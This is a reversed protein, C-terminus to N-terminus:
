GRHRSIRDSVLWPITRREQFSAISTLLVTARHCQRRHPTKSASPSFCRSGLLASSPLNRPDGRNPGLPPQQRSAGASDIQGRCSGIAPDHSDARREALEKRVYTVYRLAGTSCAAVVNECFCSLRKMERKQRRCCPKARVSRETNLAFPSAYLIATLNFEICVSLTGVTKPTVVLDYTLLRSARGFARTYLCLSDSCRCGSRIPCM